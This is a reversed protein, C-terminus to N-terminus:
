LGKGELMEPITTAWKDVIQSEEIAAKQEDALTCAPQWHYICRGGSHEVAAIQQKIETIEMM